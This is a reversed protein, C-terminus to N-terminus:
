RRFRTTWLEFTPAIRKPLEIKEWEEIQIPPHKPTIVQRGNDNRRVYYSTEVPLTTVFHILGFYLWAQVLSAARLPTRESNQTLNGALVERLEQLTWNMRQPFGRLGKNDYVYPQTRDILYPVEDVPSASLSTPILNM